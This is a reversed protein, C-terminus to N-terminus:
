SCTNEETLMETDWGDQSIIDVSPSSLWQLSMFALELVRSLIKWECKRNQPKNQACSKRVDNGLLKKCRNQHWKSSVACDVFTLHRNDWPPQALMSLYSICRLWIDFGLIAESFSTVKLQQDKTLRDIVAIIFDKSLAFNTDGISESSDVIFSLDMPACKCEPSVCLCLWMHDCGDLM